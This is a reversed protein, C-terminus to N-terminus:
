IKFTSLKREAIVIETEIVYLREDKFAKKNDRERKRPRYLDKYTKFKKM